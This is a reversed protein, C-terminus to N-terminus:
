PTSFMMRTPVVPARLSFSFSRSKTMAWPAQVSELKAWWKPRGPTKAGMASKRSKSVATAAARFRPSSGGTPFM